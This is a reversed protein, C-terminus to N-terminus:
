KSSSWEATVVLEICDVAEIIAVPTNVVASADYEHVRVVHSFGTQLLALKDIQRAM